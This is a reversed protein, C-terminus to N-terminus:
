PLPAGANDGYPYTASKGAWITTSSGGSYHTGPGSCPTKRCWVPTVQSSDLGPKAPVTPSWRTASSAAPEMFMYEAGESCNTVFNGSITGAGSIGFGCNTVTNGIFVGGVIYIGTTGAQSSCGKVMHGKGTGEILIGFWCNQFRLNLARIHRSSKDPSNKLSCAWDTLCGNRVEVNNPATASGIRIGCSSSVDRTPGKLEFGMLDITVDDSEVTIGDSTGSYSLNGPLYYFGPKNITYPLSTIKTGVGGGVAVVYFDGDAWVPAAHLVLLGILTLFGLKRKM